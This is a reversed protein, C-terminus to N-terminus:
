CLLENADFKERCDGKFLLIVQEPCIDHLTLKYDTEEGFHIQMSLVCFELISVQRENSFVLPDHELSHSTQSEPSPCTFDSSESSSYPFNSTESYLILNNPLHPQHSHEFMNQGTSNLNGEKIKPKIESLKKSRPKNDACKSLSDYYDKVQHAMKWPYFHSFSDTM